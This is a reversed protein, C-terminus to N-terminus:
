LNPFQNRIIDFMDFRVKKSFLDIFFEINIFTWAFKAFIINTTNALTFSECLSTIRKGRKSKQKNAYLEKKSMQVTIKQAM